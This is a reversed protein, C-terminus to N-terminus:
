TQRPLRDTDIFAIFPITPSRPSRISHGNTAPYQRIFVSVVDSKHRVGHRVQVGNRMLV